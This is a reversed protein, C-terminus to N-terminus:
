GHMNEMKKQILVPIKGFLVGRCIGTQTSRKLVLACAHRDGANILLKSHAPCGSLSSGAHVPIHHKRNKMGYQQLGHIVRYEM